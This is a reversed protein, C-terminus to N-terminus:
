LRRGGGSIHMLRKAAGNIKAITNTPNCKKERIEVGPSSLLYYQNVDLGHIGIRDEHCWRKSLMCAVIEVYNDDIVDNRTYRARPYLIIRQIAQSRRAM